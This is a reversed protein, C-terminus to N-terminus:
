DDVPEAGAFTLLAKLKENTMEPKAITTVAGDLMMVLIEERDGFVDSLPDEADIEWEAPRTWETAAADPVHIMAITNSLGDTVDRFTKPPGDGHWLSGPFSPFRFRTKGEASAADGSSFVEPMQALLERNAASDWPQALQFKEYLPQQELFPLMAVRGSLLPNGQRDTFCRPPLHEHAAHYNHIALALQKMRNSLTMRRAGPWYPQVLVESIMAITERTTEVTFTEEGPKILLTDGFTPALQLIEGILEQIREGAAADTAGIAAIVKPDPPLSWSLTISQLDAALQRPSFEIPSSKPARDPWMAVLDQRSESPLSFVAHHDLQDASAIKQLLEPRRIKTARRVREIAPLPGALVADQEARVGWGVSEPVGALLGQLVTKVKAPDDCPLIVLPGQDVLSRTSLTVYAHRVGSQRLSTLVQDVARAPPSQQLEGAPQSMRQALWGAIADSAVAELDIDAILVTSPELYFRAPHMAVKAQAVDDILVPEPQVVPRQTEEQAVASGAIGLVAAVAVATLPRLVPLKGTKFFPRLVPLRGTLGTRLCAPHRDRTLQRRDHDLTARPGRATHKM